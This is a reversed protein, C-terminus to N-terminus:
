GGKCENYFQVADLADKIEKSNIKVVLEQCDQFYNSLVKKKLGFIVLGGGLILIGLWIPRPIRILSDILIGSIFSLCSCVLIKSKTM